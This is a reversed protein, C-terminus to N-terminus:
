FQQIEGEKSPLPLNFASSCATQAIIVMSPPQLNRPDPSSNAKFLPVVNGFQDVLHACLLERIPRGSGVQTLTKLNPSM